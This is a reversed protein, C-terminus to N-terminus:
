GLIRAAFQGTTITHLQAGDGVLFLADLNEREALAIGEDPGLALLATAWGDAWAGNPAMISVSGTVRTALHHGRPDVVHGYRHAGLQYGQVWNSSTAIAQSDLGLVHALGGGPKEIGIQWARGHPHHGRAVVEGGLELVFDSIGSGMLRDAIVDLAHGKAIGCLDLTLGARAKKVRGQAVGIESFRGSVGTIPGFGLRSVSPGVTPDFGGGSLRAVEIAAELVRTFSKPITQWNTSQNRNFRALASTHRYPSFLADVEEVTEAVTPAVAISAHRGTTLRWYSGFASGGHVAVDGAWANRPALALSATAGILFQRRGLM